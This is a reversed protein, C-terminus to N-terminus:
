LLFYARPAYFMLCDFDFLCRPRFLCPYYDLLRRAHCRAWCWAFFPVFRYPRSLRAILDAAFSYFILLLMIASLAVDAGAYGDRTLLAYYFARPAYRAHFIYASCYCVLASAHCWFLTIYSCRIERSCWRLLCSFYWCCRCFRRSIAAYRRCYHRWAADAYLSM